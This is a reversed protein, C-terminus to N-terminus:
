LLRNIKDDLWTVKSDNRISILRQCLKDYDRKDEKNSYIYSAHVVSSKNYYFYSSDRQSILDFGSPCSLYLNNTIIWRDHEKGMMSCVNLTFKFKDGRIDKIIEILSKKAKPLSLEFNNKETQENALITINYPIDLSERPLIKDLINQLNITLVDKSKLIYGDVIVLSNSIVHLGELFGWKNDEAKSSKTIHKNMIANKLWHRPTVDEDKEDFRIIMIGFQKSIQKCIEDPECTLYISNLQEPTSRENIQHISIFHSKGKIKTGTGGFKKRAIKSLINDNGKHADFPKTTNPIESEPIDVYLNFNVLMDVLMKYRLDREDMDLITVSHELLPQIRKLFNMECYVSREIKIPSPKKAANVGYPLYCNMM